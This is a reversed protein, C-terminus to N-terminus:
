LEIDKRKELHIECASPLGIVSLSFPDGASVLINESISSAIKKAILDLQSQLVREAVRYQYVDEDIDVIRKAKYVEQRFECYDPAYEGYEEISEFKEKAKKFINIKKQASSSIALSEKSREYEKMAKSTKIKEILQTCQKEIEFLEENIIM